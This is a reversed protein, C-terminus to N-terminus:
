VDTAVLRAAGPIFAAAMWAFMTVLAMSHGISEERADTAFLTDTAMLPLYEGVKRITESWNSAILLTFPLVLVVGIGTVIAGAPNRILLGLGLGLLTVLIGVLVMVLLLRRGDPGFPEYALGSCIPIGVVLTVLESVAVVAASAVVLVTTKGALFQWRRDVALISTRVAGSQWETSAFVAGLSVLLLQAFYFGISTAEVPVKDDGFEPNRATSSAGWTILVGFGTQVVFAITLLVWPSRLGGFKILESRTARAYGANANGAPAPATMTASM